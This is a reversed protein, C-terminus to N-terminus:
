FYPIRPIRLLGEFIFAYTSLLFLPTLGLALLSRNVADYNVGYLIGFIPVIPVLYRGQPQFDMTWSHYLSVGILAVSLCIAGMALGRGAWDGRCLISTFFIVLLVAGSWRVLDYYAQTGFIKSYGFTGFSSQFTREFWRYEFIIRELTTGRDKMLLSFHKKELETSPKYDQHAYTEQLEALKATSDYGNVWYDAGVRTTFVAMGVCSMLVVGIVATKVEGFFEYTCFLKVALVLYVFSVFPLYNAKLLFVIGFLMGLGLIGSVRVTWSEKKLSRYLLSEPDVLQCGAVFAFFLGFADSSCYSFLYWIQPSVLFPLAVMRAYRNAVTYLLILGFLGVNFLRMAFIDSIELIKMLSYFKGAFLYYIEGNNLRSMGYVSYTNGVATDGLVPPLWHDKYYATAALHVYEDPHANEMSIGAMIGIMLWVGFLLVPVFRLDPLFPGAFHLIAAMILFIGALRVFLRGYDLGLYQPSLAIEFNADEGGAKIWLGEGDIRFEEVDHLPVLRSFQEPSDLVIPAYGEQRITIKKITAEGQYAHPDIRLRAVSAINTLFFDYTTREPFVEAMAMNKEAYAKGDGAWYIKFDTRQSVKLEVEVYAKGVYFYGYLACAVLCVILGFGRGLWVRRNNTVDHSSAISGFM